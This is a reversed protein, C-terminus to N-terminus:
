NNVFILLVKTWFYLAAFGTVLAGAAIYLLRYSIDQPVNCFVNSSFSFRNSDDEFISIM